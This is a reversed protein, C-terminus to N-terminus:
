ALPADPVPPQSVTREIARVRRLPPVSLAFLVLWSLATVVSVSITRFDLRTWSESASHLLASVPLFAFVDELKTKLVSDLMGSVLAVALCAVQVVFFIVIPRNTKPFFLRTIAVPLLLTGFGSILAICAPLHTLMKQHAMLAAFAVFVVTTFWFGTFWGPYFVRGLIRGSFGRAAFPRYISGIWRPQECLAATCVGVTLVFAAITIGGSHGPLFSAGLAVLFAIAALARKAAAHNEADPAIKSAGVELMLLLLVVACAIIPIILWRSWGIVSASGFRGFIFFMPAATGWIMFLIAFILFARVVRTQYPSIGITVASFVASAGLMVVLAVLEGTLNIGGIFYRLVLYPLVASVLLVAQAFIAFWKGAIIRLATLRTLFILELTNAKIEAAVSNVGSLPLIFLVSAGVLVWFFVTSGEASDPDPNLLGILVDLLMAAQLVIFTSVFARSRVGQRLEKVLMPSLWDAFDTKM